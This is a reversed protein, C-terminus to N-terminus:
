LVPFKKEGGAPNIRGRSQCLTKESAKGRHWEFKRNLVMLVSKLHLEVKIM